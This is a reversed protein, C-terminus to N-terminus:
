FIDAISHTGSSCTQYNEFPKGLWEKAMGIQSTLQRSGKVWGWFAMAGLVLFSTGLVAFLVFLTIDYWAMEDAVGKLYSILGASGGTGILMTWGHIGLSIHSEAVQAANSIKKTREM